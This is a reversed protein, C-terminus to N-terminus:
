FVIILNGYVEDEKPRTKCYLRLKHVGQHDSFHVPVHQIEFDVWIRDIRSMSKGKIFTNSKTTPYKLRFLDNFNHENEIKNFHDRYIKDGEMITNSGRDLNASAHNFDGCLIIKENKFDHLYQRSAKASIMYKKINM